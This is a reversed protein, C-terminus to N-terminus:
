KKNAMLFMPFATVLKMCNDRKSLDFNPFVRKMMQYVLFPYSALSRGTRQKVQEQISLESAKYDKRNATWEKAEQPYLEEWVAVIANVMKKGSESLPTDPKGLREWVDVLGYSALVHIEPIKEYEENGIKITKSV